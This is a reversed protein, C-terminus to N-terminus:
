AALTYRLHCISRKEQINIYQLLTFLTIKSIIKTFLGRQSKAYSKRIDFQDVLQSFVVEVRKRRAQYDEPLTYQILENQRCSTALEIGAYEFLSLRWPNSRHGKDGILICNSLEDKVDNLYNIDHHHAPSLDYRIIVGNASCVCRM